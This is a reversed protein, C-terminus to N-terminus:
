SDIPSALLFYRTVDLEEIRPAQVGAQSALRGLLYVELGGGPARAAYGALFCATSIGTQHFARFVIISNEARAV